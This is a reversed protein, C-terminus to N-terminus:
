ATNRNLSIMTAPVNTTLYDVGFARLEKARGIDDITWAYVRRGRGHLVDISWRDLLNHHFAATEIRFASMLALALVVMVRGVTRGARPRYQESIRTFTAGRSLGTRLDPFRRKLRWLGFSFTSTVLSHRRLAQVELYPVLARDVDRSKLDLVLRADPGIARLHELMEGFTLLTPILARLEDTTFSAVPAGFYDTDHYVVIDGSASLQLDCELLDAGIQIGRSFAAASNEVEDPSGGRHAVLLV